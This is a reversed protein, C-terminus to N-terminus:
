YFAVIYANAVLGDYHEDWDDKGAKAHDVVPVSDPEALEGISCIADLLDRLDARLVSQDGASTSKVDGQSSTMVASVDGTSSVRARLSKYQLYFGGGGGHITSTLVGRTLQRAVSKPARLSRDLEVVATLTRQKKPSIVALAILLLASCPSKIKQRCFRDLVLQKLPEHQPRCLATVVLLDSKFECNDVHNLVGGALSEYPSYAKLERMVYGDPEVGLTGLADLSGLYDGLPFAGLQEQQSELIYGSLLDSVVQSV